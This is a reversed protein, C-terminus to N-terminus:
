LATGYPERLALPKRKRTQIQWYGFVSIVGICFASPIVIGIILSSRVRVVECSKTAVQYSTGPGCLGRLPLPLNPPLRPPLPPPPLLPPAPPAPPPPSPPLYNCIPTAPASFQSNWFRSAASVCALDTPALNAETCRFNNTHEIPRRIGGTDMSGVPPGTFQCSSPCNPSQPDALCRAKFASVFSDPITGSLRNSQIAIDTISLTEWSAPVTGSIVNQDIVLSYKPLPNSFIDILGFPPLTGSLKNDSLVLDNFERCAYNRSDEPESLMASAPVSGRLWSPLTGSLANSSLLMFIAAGCAEFPVTGSLGTSLIKLTGVGLIGLETPLTGSLRTHSFDVHSGGNGVCPWSGADNNYAGLTACNLSAPISGSLQTSSLNINTWPGSMNSPLTGSIRFGAMELAFPLTWPPDIHVNSSPLTGSLMSNGNLRIGATSDSLTGSLRNDQLNIYPLSLSSVLGPPVTGSIQNPAAANYQFQSCGLQLMDISTEPTAGSSVTPRRGERLPLNAVARPITGSLKNGCLIYRVAGHGSGLDITGLSEPLTGSLRSLAVELQRVKHGITPLTGSIATNHTILARLNTMLALQSPLTGSLGQNHSVDIYRVDPLAQFANAPLTGTLDNNNLTLYWVHDGVCVVNEAGQQRQWGDSASWTPVNCADELTWSTEDVKWDQKHKWKRGGTSNFIALLANLQALGPRLTSSPPAPPQTPTPPSPHCTYRCPVPPTESFNGGVRGTTGDPNPGEAGCTFNNNTLYNARSSHTMWEGACHTTAKGYPDEISTQCLRNLACLSAGSVINLRALETPVTGSIANMDMRFTTLSSFGGVNQLESPLTGSIRSAHLDFTQARVLDGFQTPLTGSLASQFLSLEKLGTLRGMQTPLTGSILSPPEDTGPTTQSEASLTQSFRITAQPLHNLNGMQTPLTGSISTSPVGVFGGVNQFSSAMKGVQWILTSVRRRTIGRTCLSPCCPEPPPQAGHVWVETPLTGSLRSYSVDMSYLNPVDLLEVPLTGSVAVERVTLSSLVLPSSPLTGSLKLSGDISLSTFPNESFSSPITGSLASAGINLSRDGAMSNAFLGAPLTGSVRDMREFFASTLSRMAAMEMPLTGSLSGMAEFFFLPRLNTLKAIQTPLTGSWSNGGLSLSGLTGLNTLRGIETPIYGTIKNGWIALNDLKNLNSLETPLTGSVRSNKLQLSTLTSISGLEAPMTGSLVYFTGLLTAGNIDISSVVQYNKHFSVVQNTFTCQIGVWPHSNSCPYTTPDWITTGQGAMTDWNPGGAAYYFTLLADRQTCEVPHREPDHLCQKLLGLRVAM